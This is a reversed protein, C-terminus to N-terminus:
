SVISTLCYLSLKVSVPHTHQPCQQSSITLNDTWIRSRYLKWVNYNRACLLPWVISHSNSLFLIHINPVGSGPYRLTLPVSVPGNYKGFTINEVMHAWANCQLCQSEPIYTHTKTHSDSWNESSITVSAYICRGNHNRPDYKGSNSLHLRIYRWFSTYMSM